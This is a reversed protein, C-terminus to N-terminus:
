REPSRHYTLFSSKRAKTSCNELGHASKGTDNSFVREEAQEALDADLRQTKDKGDKHHAPQATLAVALVHRYQGVDVDKGNERVQPQSRIRQALDRLILALGEVEKGIDHREPQQEGDRRHRQRGPRRPKGATVRRQDPPNEDIAAAEKDIGNLTWQIRQEYCFLSQIVRRKETNDILQDKDHQARQHQHLAIANQAQNPSGQHGHQHRGHKAGTGDATAQAPQM